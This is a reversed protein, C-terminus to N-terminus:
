RVARTGAGEGRSQPPSAKIRERCSLPKFHTVDALAPTELSYSLYTLFGKSISQRSLEKRSFRCDASLSQFSNKYLRFYNIIIEDILMLAFDIDIDIDIGSRM